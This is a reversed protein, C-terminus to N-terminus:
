PGGFIREEKFAILFSVLITLTLIKLISSILWLSGAVKTLTKLSFCSFRLLCITIQPIKVQRIGMGRELEM